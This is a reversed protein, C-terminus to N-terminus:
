NLSYSLIEAAMFSLDFRFLGLKLTELLEYHDESNSKEEELTKSLRSDLLKYFLYFVSCTEHFPLEAKSLKDIFDDYGVLVYEVSGKISEDVGIRLSVYRSKIKEILDERNM